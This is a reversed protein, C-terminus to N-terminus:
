GQEVLPVLFCGTGGFPVVTFGFQTLLEGLAANMTHQVAADLGAGRVQAVSMRDHRHWGAVIGRGGADPTLCVGGSPANGACDHLTLGVEVLAAALEVVLTTLSDEDTLLTDWDDALRDLQDGLERLWAREQPLQRRVLGTGGARQVGYVVRPADPLNGTLAAWDADIRDPFPGGVIGGPQSGARGVLWWAPSSGPEIIRTGAPHDALGVAAGGGTRHARTVADGSGSGGPQDGASRGARRTGAPEDATTRTAPMPPRAPVRNREFEYRATSSTALAIVLCALVAFGLVAVAPWFLSM